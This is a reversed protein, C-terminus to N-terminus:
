AAAPEHQAQRARDAAWWKSWKEITTTGDRLARRWRIYSAIEEDVWRKSKGQLVPRPFEDARVDRWRQVPSRKGIIEGLAENDLLKMKQRGSITQLCL